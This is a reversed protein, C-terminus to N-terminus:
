YERRRRLQIYRIHDGPIAIHDGPLALHVVIEWEQASWVAAGTRRDLRTPKGWRSFAAYAHMGVAVSDVTGVGPEMLTVGEVVGDRIGVQIGRSYVLLTLAHEVEAVTTPSGLVAEGDKRPIGVAVGAAVPAPTTAPWPFRQTAAVAAPLPSPTRAPELASRGCAACLAIIAFVFRPM